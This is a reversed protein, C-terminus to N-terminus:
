KTVEKRLGSGDIITSDESKVSEETGAINLRLAINRLLSEFSAVRAELAEYKQNVAAELADM